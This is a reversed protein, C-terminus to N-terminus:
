AKFEAILSVTITSLARYVSEVQPPQSYTWEMVNDASTGGKKMASAAAGGIDLGAFIEDPLTFGTLIGQQGHYHNYIENLVSEGVNEFSLELTAGYPRNGFSRRVVKGSLSRYVKIPYEGIAFSRRTPKIKPFQAM